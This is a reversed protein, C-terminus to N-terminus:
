LRCQAGRAGDKRPSRCGMIGSISAVFPASVDGEQAGMCTLEHLTREPCLSWLAGASGAYWDGTGGQKGPM